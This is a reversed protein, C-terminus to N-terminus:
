KRNKDSKMWARLKIETEVTLKTWHEVRRTQINYTDYAINILSLLLELHSYAEEQLEQRLHNTLPLANARRICSYGDLASNVIRTALLWRSNKPFIKDNKCIRITYQVLINARTLVELTGERREYKRVSM